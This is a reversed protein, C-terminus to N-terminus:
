SRESYSAVTERGASPKARAAIRALAAWAGDPERVLGEELHLVTLGEALALLAGRAVRFAPNRPGVVSADTTLALHQEALLLGGPQLAPLLAALLPMNVYRFNIIAHYRQPPQFGNDLDRQMWCIPLDGATARGRALAVPSIDVADATLGRKALFIANRGAGCALDLVRGRDPLLDACRVLFASASPRSEYAGDAYRADWKCRDQESM